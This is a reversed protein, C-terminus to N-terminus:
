GLKLPFNFAVTSRITNDFNLGVEHELYSPFLLITGKEAKYSFKNWSFGTDKSYSTYSNIKNPNYFTLESAYENARIWYIGSIGHIGHEHRAHRQGQERYDQTWFECIGDTSDLGTINYYEDRCKLIEEYLEPVSNELDFIRTSLFFDGYHDDLKPISDLNELFKEEIKDALQDDIKHSLIAVPFLVNINM